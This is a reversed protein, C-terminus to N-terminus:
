GRKTKSTLFYFYFFSFVSIEWAKPTTVATQVSAIHVQALLVSSGGSAGRGEFRGLRLCGSWWALGRGTEHMWEVMCPGAGMEHVWEVMCPGSGTEHVWEVM